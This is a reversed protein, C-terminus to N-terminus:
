ETELRPKIESFSMIVTLPKSGTHYHHVCECANEGKGVMKECLLVDSCSGSKVYM